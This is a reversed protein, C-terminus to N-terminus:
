FIHLSVVFACNLKRLMVTSYSFKNVKEDGLLALELDDGREIFIAIPIRYVLNDVAIKSLKDEFLILLTVWSEIEYRM